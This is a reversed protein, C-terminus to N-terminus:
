AGRHPLTGPVPYPLPRDALGARINAVACDTMASRAAWTASGIHPTIVLNPAALLSHGPPLPEPDTVDLGAGAIQGTRLAHTLATTDVLPGRATNILVATRKMDALAASSIIHRTAPTFPCHLSVYDAEGLLHPLDHLDHRGATLIQMGFGRARGAVAQGIRGYGIILLRAGAVAHGLHGSPEWTTWRGRRVHREAAPLDRATALLLAFTLDATADTLVDPTNGVAIGRAAAAGVDINDYGVAYNAIVKLDPCHGLLEATVHETLLTIAAETDRM